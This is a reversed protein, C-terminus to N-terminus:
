DGSPRFTGIPHDFHTAYRNDSPSCGAIFDQGGFDQGWLGPGEADAARRERDQSCTEDARCGRFSKAKRRLRIWQGVFVAQFRRTIGVAEILWRPSPPSKDDTQNKNVRDDLRNFFPQPSRSVPFTQGVHSPMHFQAVSPVNRAAMPQSSPAVRRMMRAVRRATQGM